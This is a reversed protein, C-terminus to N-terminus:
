AICGENTFSIISAHGNKKEHKLSIDGAKWHWDVSTVTGRKFGFGGPLYIEGEFGAMFFNKPFSIFSFYKEPGPIM